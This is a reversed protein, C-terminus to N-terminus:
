SSALAIREAITFPAKPNHQTFLAIACVRRPVAVAAAFHARVVPLWTEREAETLRRTLTMHFFWTAFAYPYGWRVLTADQAPTLRSKRRRALEEDSPPARLADAGAVCADALAQLEPSPITERLALFGHLDAVRLAPLDFAPTAAAIERTAILLDHHSAGNRLHMPPKLTAHFGYHRADRTVAAIDPFDPQPCAANTAADRGLWNSAAVHLTDDPDPAYYLAYRAPM